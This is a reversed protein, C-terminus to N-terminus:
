RDPLALVRQIAAELIPRLDQQMKEIKRLADEIGDMDQAALARELDETPGDIYKGLVGAVEQWQKIFRMFAEAEALAEKKPQDAHIRDERFRSMATHLGLTHRDYLGMFSPLSARDVAALRAQLRAAQEKERALEEQVGNLARETSEAKQTAVEKERHAEREKQWEFLATLMALVAMVMAGITVPEKQEKTGTIGLEDPCFRGRM